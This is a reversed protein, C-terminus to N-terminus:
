KNVETANNHYDHTVKVAENKKPVGNPYKTTSDCEFTKSSGDDGSVRIKSINGQKDRKIYSVTGHYIFTVPKPEPKDIETDGSESNMVADVMAVLSEQDLTDGYSDLITEIVADLDRNVPEIDVILIQKRDLVQEGNLTTAAMVLHYRGLPTRHPIQCRVAVINRNDSAVRVLASGINVRRLNTTVLFMNVEVGMDRKSSNFLGVQAGFQHKPTAAVPSRLLLATLQSDPHLDVSDPQQAHIRTTSCFAGCVSIALLCTTSILIRRIMPLFREFEAGPIYQVNNTVLSLMALQM